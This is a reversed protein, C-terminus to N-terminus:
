WFVFNKALEAVCVVSGHSRQDIALDGASVIGAGLESPVEIGVGLIGFM